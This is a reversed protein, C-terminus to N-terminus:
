SHRKEPLVSYLWDFFAFWIPSLCGVVLASLLGFPWILGTAKTGVMLIVIIAASIFWVLLSQQWWNPYQIQSSIYLALLYGVCLASVFLGLPACTFTDALLGLLLITILGDPLKEHFGYWVVLPILGDLRIPGYQICSGITCEFLLLIYGLLIVFLGTKM